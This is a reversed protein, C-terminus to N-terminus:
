LGTTTNLLVPLQNQSISFSTVGTTFEVEIVLFSNMTIFDMAVTTTNSNQTKEFVWPVPSSLEKPLSQGADAIREKSPAM